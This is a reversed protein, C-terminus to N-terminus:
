LKLRRTLPSKIRKESIYEVFILKVRFSSTVFLAYFTIFKKKNKKDFLPASFNYIRNM